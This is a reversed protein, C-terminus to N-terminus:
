APAPAAASCGEARRIAASSRIPEDLPQRAVRGGALDGVVDQGEQVAAPGVALADEQLHQHGHEAGVGSGGRGVEQQGTAVDVLAVGGVEGPHPQDDAGLDAGVAFNWSCFILCRVPPSM